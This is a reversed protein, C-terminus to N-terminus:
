SVGYPENHIRLETMDVQCIWRIADKPSSAVDNCGLNRAYAVMRIESTAIFMHIRPYKAYKMAEWAKDNRALSVEGHAEGTVKRALIVGDVVTGFSFCLMSWKGLYAAGEKM